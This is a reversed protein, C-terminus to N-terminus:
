QLPVTCGEARAWEIMPETWRTREGPQGGATRISLKPPWAAGHARLWQAAALQSCAGAVFLVFALADPSSTLVSIQQLYTLVSTHGMEAAIGWLANAEYPCGHELLWKLTDLECHQAAAFCATANCPCQQALLYDCVATHGNAAARRMTEETVAVGQAKFLQLLPLKCNAAAASSLESANWPCGLARMRLLTEFHGGFAAIFCANEDWACGEAHLYELVHTHGHHAAVFTTMATPCPAGKEKLYTLMAVNGSSAAADCIDNFAGFGGATAAVWELKELSGSMGVGHALWRTCPVGFEHAQALADMDSHLGVAHRAREDDLSLGLECALQLLPASAVAASLLTMRPICTFTIQRIDENRGPMILEPVRQCSERWARSVLALPVWHGPGVYDV